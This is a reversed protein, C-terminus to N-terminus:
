EDPLSDCFLLLCVCAVTYDFGWFGARVFRLRRGSKRPSHGKEYYHGCRSVFLKSTATRNWATPLATTLLCRERNALGARARGLGTDIMMMEM